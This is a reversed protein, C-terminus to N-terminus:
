INSRLFTSYLHERTCVCVGHETTHSQYVRTNPFIGSCAQFYCKPLSLLEEPLLKNGFWCCLPSKARPVELGVSPQPSFCFWVRCLCSGARASMPIGTCAVCPSCFEQLQCMFKTYVVTGVARLKQVCHQCLLVFSLKDWCWWLEKAQVLAAGCRCISSNM